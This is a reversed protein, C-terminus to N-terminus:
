TVIETYCFVSRGLLFSEGTERLGLERSSIQHPHALTWEMPVLRNRYYYKPHGLENGLYRALEMCIENYGQVRHGSARGSVSQTGLSSGYALCGASFRSVLNHSVGVQSDALNALTCCEGSM